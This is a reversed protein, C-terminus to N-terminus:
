ARPQRSVQVAGDVERVDYVPLPEEAPPSTAVGTFVNFGSAHIPCWVTEDEVEGQVLEVHEHTCIASLACVKGNVRTLVIPVTDIEVRLLLCEGVEDARAVTIFEDPM